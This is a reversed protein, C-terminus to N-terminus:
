KAFTEWPVFKYIVVETIARNDVDTRTCKSFSAGAFQGDFPRKERRCLHGSPVARPSLIMWDKFGHDACRDVGDVKKKRM